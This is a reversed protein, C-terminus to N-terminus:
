SVPVEITRSNAPQYTTHFTQDVNPAVIVKTESETGYSAAKVTVYQYTHEETDGTCCLALYESGSEVTVALYNPLGPSEEEFHQDNWAGSHATTCKYFKYDYKVYDGVSYQASSSFETWPYGLTVYRCGDGLTIYSCSEGITNEECSSGFNSNLCGDGIINGLFTDGARNWCCDSGFTSKCANGFTNNFCRDGFTNKACENGFTNTHCSGGFINDYCGYGFSNNYCGDGFVNRFCDTGFTNCYCGDGFTNLSCGDGFSNSHCNDSKFVISNLSRTGDTGHYPNITNGYIYKNGLLSYDTNNNATGSDFTYRWVNDNDGYAKFQIGKFDYPLDNNFEDILRYIVGKGFSVSRIITPNSMYASAFCYTDAAPKESATYRKIASDTTLKWCYPAYGGSVDNAGDRVFTALQSNYYSEFSSLNAWQFRSDDNDLCYWVQWAEFKTSAPFYTDGQHRIARAVENLKNTSDATVILDFPHGTGEAARGLNNTVMADNVTATYDTIRYQAGPVLKGTDRLIVLSDWTTSTYSLADQVFATTAVKTSDDGSTPTPATPTGTFAPSELPALGAVSPIDSTLALTSGSANNPWRWLARSNEDVGGINSLGLIGTLSKFWLTKEASFTGLTLDGNLTQDGSNGLVDSQKAVQVDRVYVTEKQELTPSTDTVGAVGNFRLSSDGDGYKLNSNFYCLADDSAANKVSVVGSSNSSFKLGANSAITVTASDKTYTIPFCSAPLAYELVKTEAPHVHSGKSYTTDSEDGADADGAMLPDELCPEPIDAVVKAIKNEVFQETAAYSVAARSSRQNESM